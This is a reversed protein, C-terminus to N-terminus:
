QTQYSFSTKTKQFHLKPEHSFSMEPRLIEKKRVLDVHSKVFSQPISKDSYKAVTIYDQIRVTELYDTEECCSFNVIDDTKHM